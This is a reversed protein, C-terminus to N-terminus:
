AQPNRKALDVMSMIFWALLAYVIMAVLTGVELKSIGAHFPENFLTQFPSVFPHSVTYVLNAFGNSANAGFLVLVFRLALFGELLGFILYVFRQMKSVALDPNKTSVARKTVTEDGSRSESTRVEQIQDVM